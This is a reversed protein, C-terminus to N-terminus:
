EESYFNKGNEIAQQLKDLVIKNKYFRINTVLSKLYENAFEDNGTTSAYVLSYILDNHTFNAFYSKIVQTHESKPDIKPNRYNWLNVQIGNFTILKNETKLKTKFEKEYYDIDWNMYNILVNEKSDVFESKDNINFQFWQNDKKIMPYNSLDIDGDLNLTHYNNEINFYILLGNNTPIVGSKQEECREKYINIALELGINKSIIWDECAGIEDNLFDYKVVGRNYYASANKNDLEIAKSYDKLAGQYDGANKKCIGRKDYAYANNPELEIIKSFDAIAGDYDKLQAKAFARASYAQTNKNDSKIIENFQIIAEKFNGEQMEAFARSMTNSNTQSYINFSLLSLIFLILPKKM